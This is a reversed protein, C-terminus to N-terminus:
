LFVVPLLYAQEPHYIVAVRVGMESILESYKEKFMQM